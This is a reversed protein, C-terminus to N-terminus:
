SKNTKILTKRSVASRKAAILNAKAVQRLYLLLDKNAKDVNGEEPDYPNVVVLSSDMSSTHCFTSCTPDNPNACECRGTSRRRRSLPSGLGYPAIKSPTNVWIIDLHCFYICEKDMWNSCSCRKTRVRRAPLPSSQSESAQFLPVGFGEEVFVCFTASILLITHLSLDM